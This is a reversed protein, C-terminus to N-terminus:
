QGKLSKHKNLSLALEPDIVALAAATALAAKHGISARPKKAIGLSKVRRLPQKRMGLRHKM